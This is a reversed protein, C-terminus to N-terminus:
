EENEEENFLVIYLICYLSYMAIHVFMHFGINCKIIKWNLFIHYSINFESYSYCNQIWSETFCLPVNLVLTSFYSSGYILYAEPKEKLVCKIGYWLMIHKEASCFDNKLSKENIKMFLFIDFLSFRFDKHHM